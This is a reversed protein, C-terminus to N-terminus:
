SFEAIETGQKVYSRGIDSSDVVGSRTSSIRSRYSVVHVTAIEVHERTEERGVRYPIQPRM